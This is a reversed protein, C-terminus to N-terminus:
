ILMGETRVNKLYQSPTISTIKKFIRCFYNSDNYGVMYAVETISRNGQSLYFQALKIRHFNIFETVSFGTERKFKRSLSSVNLFFLEALQNVTLESPLHELIYTAIEQIKASYQTTSCDRVALCYDSFMMPTVKKLLFEVSSSSEILLGYKYSISGVIFASVGGRRAAIRCLTNLSITSNKVSRLYDDPFRHYVDDMNLVEGNRGQSRYIHLCAKLDGQSICGLLQDEGLYRQEITKSYVESSEFAAQRSYIYDPIMDKSNEM